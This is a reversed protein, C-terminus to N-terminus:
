KAERMLSEYEVRLEDKTIIGKKVLLRTIAEIQMMNSYILEDPTVMEKPDLKEAMNNKGGICGLRLLTMRQGCALSKNINGVIGMLNQNENVALVKKLQQMVDVMMIYRQNQNILQSPKIHNGAKLNVKISGAIDM